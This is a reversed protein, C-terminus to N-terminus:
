KRYVDLLYLILMLSGMSLPFIWPNQYLGAYGASFAAIAIVLGCGRDSPDSEPMPKRQQTNPSERPKPRM